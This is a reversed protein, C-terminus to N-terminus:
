GRPARLIGAFWFTDNYEYGNNFDSCATQSGISLYGGTWGDGYSDVCRVPINLTNDLCCTQTFTRDASFTGHIAKCNDSITWSNEDGFDKTVTTIVVDVCFSSTDSVEVAGASCQSNQPLGSEYQVAPTEFTYGVTATVTCTKLLPSCDEM